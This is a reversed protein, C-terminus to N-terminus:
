NQGGLSPMDTVSEPPPAQIDFDEGWNDIMMEITADDFGFSVQRMLDQDDVWVDYTVEPPMGATDSEGMAEAAASTDVVIAYHDMQEGAVDEPGVYTVRQAGVDWGEWTSKLDITDTVEDMGLGELQGAPVEFYEGQPTLGPVALYVAGEVMLLELDGMGPVTMELDMEPAAGTLEARGTMTLEEGQASMDLSVEFSGLTDEGPSKLRDLLDQVPIEEGAAVSEAGGQAAPETGGGAAATDGAGDAGAATVTGGDGAETVQGQSGCAGLGLAAATVLVVWARRGTTRTM